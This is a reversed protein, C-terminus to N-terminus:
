GNTRLYTLYNLINSSTVQKLSSIEEGLYEFFSNLDSLYSTLTNDALGREVALHHIFQEVYVKVAAM